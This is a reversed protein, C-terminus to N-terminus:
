EDAQFSVTKGEKQPIFALSALKENIFIWSRKEKREERREQLQVRVQSVFIFVNHELEVSNRVAKLMGSRNQSQVKEHM